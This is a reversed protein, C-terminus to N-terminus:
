ARAPVIANFAVSVFQVEEEQGFAMKEGDLIAPIETESFVQVLKAKRSIVAPDERWEGKFAATALRIAEVPDEVNFIAVELAREDNSLVDSILPCIISVAGARREAGKNVRYTVQKEFTHHLARIGHAIADDLAGERVAERADAWLSPTGFIAAVFFQKNAVQGCSVGRLEPKALTKQLVEQWPIDGYLAKPLMNMTGGPLPILFPGKQTCAEAATRITGDGGLVILVDLEAAIAEAFTEPMESGERTWIQPSVIGSAAVLEQVEKQASADCSGSSTNLIVGVKMNKLDLEIAM